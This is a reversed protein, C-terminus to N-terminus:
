HQHLSTQDITMGGATTVPYNSLSNNYNYDPPTLGRHNQQDDIFGDSNRARMRKAALIGATTGLSRGGGSNIAGSTRPKAGGHRM